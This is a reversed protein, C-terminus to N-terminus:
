KIMCNISFPSGKTAWNALNSDIVGLVDLFTGVLLYSGYILFLGIFVGKILDKGTKLCEPKGGGFYFYIGGIVLFLVALYPIIYILM